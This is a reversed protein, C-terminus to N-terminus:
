MILLKIIQVAWGTLNPQDFRSSHSPRPMYGTHSSLLPAYLTNTPFGSLFLGSSLGQLLRSSLILISIWSTPHPTHVTDLQNPIPVPPPCEHIRYHFKPNWLILPIEQSASFRIAEWSPNQENSYTLLYTFLPTAGNM